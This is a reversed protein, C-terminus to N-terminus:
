LQININNEAGSEMEFLPMESFGFMGAFFNNPVTNLKTNYNTVDSNYLRRAAQLQNEIKTLNKQLNLFHESAKLEPYNEAIALIQNCKANLESGKELDKTKNYEARLRTITELTEKEFKSYGKVCEVLNPILDFRQTLYVDVSSKAQLAKNRAKILSNYISFIIIVIIFFLVFLLM